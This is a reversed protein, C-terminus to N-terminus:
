GEKNRPSPRWGEPALEECFDSPEIAIQSTIGLTEASYWYDKPVQLSGSLASLHHSQADHGNRSITIVMPDGNTVSIRIDKSNRRWSIFSDLTLILYKM